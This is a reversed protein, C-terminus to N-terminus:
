HVVVVVWFGSVYLSHGCEGGFQGGQLLVQGEPVSVPVSVAFREPRASLGPVFEFLVSRM